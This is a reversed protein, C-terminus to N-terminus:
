ECNVRLSVFRSAPLPIELGPALLCEYLLRLSLCACGTPVDNVSM